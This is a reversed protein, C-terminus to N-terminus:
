HAPGPPLTYLLRVTARDAPSLSPVTARAFMIDGESPSHPLGLLHGVEHRATAQVWEPAIVEGGPGHLAIVIRSQYVWGYRDTARWTKGIASDGEAFRDTWTVKVDANGEDVVFIFQVPIGIGSWEGFAERARQAYEPRWDPIPPDPDVWIRLPDFLREPWRYINGGQQVILAEIYTGRGGLAIRRQTDEPDRAPPPASARDTVTVGEVPPPGAPAPAAVPAAVPAPEATDAAMEVPAPAADARRASSTVKGLVFGALGAALVVPVLQSRTM